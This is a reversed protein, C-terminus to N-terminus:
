SWGCSPSGFLKQLRQPDVGNAKFLGGTGQRAYAASAKRKSNDYARKPAEDPKKEDLNEKWFSGAVFKQASHWGLAFVTQKPQFYDNGSDDSSSDDESEEPQFPVHTRTSAKSRNSSCSKKSRETEEGEDQFPAFSRKPIRKSSRSSEAPEDGFLQSGLPKSHVPDQLCQKLVPAPKRPREAPEAEFPPMWSQAGTLLSPHSPHYRALPDLSSDLTMYSGPKASSASSLLM